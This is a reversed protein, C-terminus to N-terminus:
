LQQIKQYLAAIQDQKENMQQVIDNEKYQSKLELFESKLRKIEPIIDGEATAAASAIPSLKAEEPM